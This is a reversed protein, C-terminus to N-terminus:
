WAILVRLISSRSPNVRIARPRSRPLIAVLVAPALYSALDVAVVLTLLGKQCGSAAAVELPQQVHEVGVHFQGDVAGSAWDDDEAGGLDGGARLQAGRCGHM